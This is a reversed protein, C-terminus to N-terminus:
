FYILVIGELRQILNAVTSRLDQNDVELHVVKEILQYECMLSSDVTTQGTCLATALLVGAFVVFANRAM